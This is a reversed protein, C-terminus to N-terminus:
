KEFNVYPLSTGPGLKCLRLQAQKVFPVMNQTMDTPRDTMLISWIQLINSFRKIISELQDINGLIVFNLWINCFMARYYKYFTWFVTIKDNELGLMLDFVEKVFTTWNPISNPFHPMFLVLKATMQDCCDNPWKRLLAEKVFTAWPTISCPTGRSSVFVIPKNSPSSLLRYAQVPTRKENSIYM